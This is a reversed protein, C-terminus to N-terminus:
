KCKVGLNTLVLKLDQKAAEGFYYQGILTKILRETVYRKPNLDIKSYNIYSKDGKHGHTYGLTKGLYELGLNYCDTYELEERLIQKIDM